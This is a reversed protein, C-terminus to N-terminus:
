LLQTAISESGVQAAMQNITRWRRPTYGTFRRFVTTFHAQTQFGVTLAIELVTMAPDTMLEEARQVRRRLLFEHPRLGTAERFQSAFHMRSLGAVAALDFLTIKSSLHVDIYDLVRKLRWNQLAQIQRGNTHVRVTAVAQHRAPQLGFAGAAIALRLAEACQTDNGQMAVKLAQFLSLTIDDDPEILSSQRPLAPSVNAIVAAKHVRNQGPLSQAFIPQLKCTPSSM